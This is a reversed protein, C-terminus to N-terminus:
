SEADQASTQATQLTVFSLALATLMCAVASTVRWQPSSHRLVTFRENLLLAVRQRLQSPSEWLGVAASLHMAPRSPIHRAWDVLQEAYHQRSTIEAAAADALSEQDLRMRRRLLWFLPQAWLFMLLARSAALWRLDYSAVHALEHALVTRLQERSRSKVWRAPLLVTTWFIGLAVAVDIRNSIRLDPLRSPAKQLTAVDALVANLEAPAPVAGRQLRHAAFFGLCLWAFAVLSGAVHAIVVILTWPLDRWHTL